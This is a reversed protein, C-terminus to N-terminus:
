VNISYATSSQASRLSPVLIRSIPVPQPLRSNDASLSIDCAVPNADINRHGRYLQRALICTSRAQVLARAKSQAIHGVDVFLREVKYQRAQWKERTPQDRCQHRLHQQM